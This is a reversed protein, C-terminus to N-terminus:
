VLHPRLLDAWLAYGAPSMHLKDELYLQPIPLGDAGIMVPWVDLFTTLPIQECAHQLLANTQRSLKALPWRLPSPKISYLVVPTGPRLRAITQRTATFDSLVQEPTRGGALDNDSFLVVLRPQHAHIIRSMYQALHEM